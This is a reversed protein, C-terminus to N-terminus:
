SKMEAITLYGQHVPHDSKGWTWWGSGRNRGGSAPTRGKEATGNKKRATKAHFVLSGKGFAMRSGPLSLWALEAVYFFKLLM